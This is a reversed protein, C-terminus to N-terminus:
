NKNNNLAGPVGGWFLTLANAGLLPTDAPVPTLEVLTRAGDDDDDATTTALVSAYIAQAM